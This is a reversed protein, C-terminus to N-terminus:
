ATRNDAAVTVYEPELDQAVSAGPGFIRVDPLLEAHRSGGENFDAFSITQVPQPSGACRLAGGTRFPRTVIVSVSGEPDVSDAAGHSNPEGENAVVVHGGDPTFTVMDPLAGVTVNGVLTSGRFFLVRGPDTKTSAPVSVAVLGDHVAVSTPEGPLPLTGVKAPAAPNSVDVVDIAGVNMVYLREDEYAVIEARTEESGPVPPTTSRGAPAFHVAGDPVAACDATVAGAGGGTALVTGGALAAIAVVGALGSRRM